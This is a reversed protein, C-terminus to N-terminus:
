RLKWNLLRLYFWWKETIFNSLYYVWKNYSFEIEPYELALIEKEKKYIRAGKLTTSIGDYQVVAQVIELKKFKGCIMNGNRIYFELDSSLKLDVRFLTDKFLSQHNLCGQHVFDFKKRVKGPDFLCPKESTYINRKNGKLERIANGYIFLLGENIHSKSAVLFELSIKDSLGLFAVYEGKAFSLGRNWADYIGSDKESTIIIKDNDLLDLTGDESGGDSIIVEIWSHSALDSLHDKVKLLIEYENYCAYILSVFM